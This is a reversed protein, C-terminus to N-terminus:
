TTKVKAADVAAAGKGAAAAEIRKAAVRAANAYDNEDINVVEYRYLVPTILNLIYAFKNSAHTLGEPNGALAQSYDEAASYSVNRAYELTEIDELIGIQKLGEPDAVKEDVKIVFKAFYNELKRIEIERETDWAPLTHYNHLVVSITNHLRTRFRAIPAQRPELESQRLYVAMNTILTNTYQARIHVDGTIIDLYMLSVIRKLKPTDM